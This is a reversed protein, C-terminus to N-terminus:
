RIAGEALLIQDLPLQHKAFQHEVRDHVTCSAILAFPDGDLPTDSEVGDTERNLVGACARRLRQQVRWRQRFIGSRLTAAAQEDDRTKGILQPWPPTRLSKTQLHDLM